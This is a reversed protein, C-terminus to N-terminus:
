PNTPVTQGLWANLQEVSTDTKVVPLLAMEMYKEFSQIEKTKFDDTPTVDPFPKSFNCLREFSTMDNCHLCPKLKTMDANLKTM